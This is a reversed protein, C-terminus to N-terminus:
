HKDSKAAPKTEPRLEPNKAYIASLYAQMKSNEDARAQNQVDIRGFERALWVSGIAVGFLMAICCTAAVWVGVGGANININGSQASSGQANSGADPRPVRDFREMTVQLSRAADIWDRALQPDLEM